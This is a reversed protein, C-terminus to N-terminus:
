KLTYKSKTAAEKRPLNIGDANRAGAYQEIRVELSRNHAASANKIVVPFIIGAMLGPFFKVLPYERAVIPLFSVQDAFDFSEIGTERFCVDPLCNVM